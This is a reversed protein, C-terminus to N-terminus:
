EKPPFRAVLMTLKIEAERETMLGESRLLVIARRLQMQRSLPKGPKM